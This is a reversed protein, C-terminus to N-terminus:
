LERLVLIGARPNVREVRLRVPEGIEAGALSPVAQEWLTAVLQVIPRPETDVVIADVERDSQRELWRLIWYDNAAREARRAGTEARETLAAIRQMADRDYPPREGTVHAAIQRQAALDQFRRLASTVQLYADLGLGAHRGPVTGVDARQMRRRVRRVLVPDVIRGKPLSGPDAPPAQRRYIVPLGADGCARACIEGALVM